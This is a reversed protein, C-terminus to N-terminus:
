NIWLSWNLEFYKRFFVHINIFVNKPLKIKFLVPEESKEYM